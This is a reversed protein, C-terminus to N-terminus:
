EKFYYKGDIKEVDDKFRSQEVDKDTALRLEDVPVSGISFVKIRPGDATARVEETKQVQRTTKIYVLVGEPFQKVAAEYKEDKFHETSFDYFNDQKNEM